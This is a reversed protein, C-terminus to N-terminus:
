KVTIDFRAIVTKGKPPVVEVMASDTGKFDSDSRYTILLAPRKYKNCDAHPDSAPFRSFALGDEITITGHEPQTVVRGDIHGDPTCDEKLSQPEALRVAEGSIATKQITFSPKPPPEPAVVPPPPPAEVPKLPEQAIKAPPEVPPPAEAEPVHRPPPTDDDDRGGCGAMALCLLVPLLPRVRM